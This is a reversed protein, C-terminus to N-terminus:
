TNYYMNYYHTGTCVVYIVFTLWENFAKCIWWKWMDWLGKQTPPFTQKCKLSDCTDENCSNKGFPNFRSKSRGLNSLCFFYAVFCGTRNSEWIYPTLCVHSCRIHLFPKSGVSLVLSHKCCKRPPFPWHIWGTGWVHIQRRHKIVAVIITNFHSNRSCTANCAGLNIM